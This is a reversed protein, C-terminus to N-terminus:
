NFNEYNQIFIIEFHNTYVSVTIKDELNATYLILM